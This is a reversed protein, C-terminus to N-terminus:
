YVAEHIHCIKESRSLGHGKEAHCSPAEEGSSSPKSSCEPIRHTIRTNKQVYELEALQERVQAIYCHLDVAFHLAISVCCPIPNTQLLM